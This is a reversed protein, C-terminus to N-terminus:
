GATRYRQLELKLLENEHRLARLERLIAQHDRKHTANDHMELNELRNDDKVGNFHHVIESPMLARGLSRAMVLRHEPIAHHGSRNAMSKFQAQEAESLTSLAIMWYGRSKFRGGKWSACAPGVLRPRNARIKARAQTTHLVGFRRSKLGTLTELHKHYCAKSCYKKRRM